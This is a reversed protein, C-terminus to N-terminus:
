IVAKIGEAIRPIDKSPVSGFCFRGNNLMYFPNDTRLRAVAGPNQPLVLSFLGVQREVFDFERGLVDVLLKRRDQLMSRPERLNEVYEQLLIPDEYITGMLEEGISPPNSFITRAIGNLYNQPKVADEASQMEMVLLGTRLGYVGGNKSNSLAIAIPVGQERFVRIGLTDEELGEGLGIYAADWLVFRGKMAKALMEWEEASKPNDGTPNHTRGAHLLVITNPDSKQIADLHTQLDYEKGKLHPYSNVDFGGRKFIGLHNSWTPDSLLIKADPNQDKLFETFVNLAGTGGPAGVAVLRGEGMMEEAVEKGFVIRASGRVYAPRALWGEKSAIVYGRNGLGIRAAAKDVASPSYLNGNDDYLEGVTADIIGPRKDQKILLQIGFIADPPTDPVNRFIRETAM